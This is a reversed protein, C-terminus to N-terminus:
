DVLACSCALHKCLDSIPHAQRLIRRLRQYERHLKNDMQLLLAQLLHKKASCEIDQVMCTVEAPEGPETVKFWRTKGGVNDRKFYIAGDIEIKEQKLIDEISKIDCIDIGSNLVKFQHPPMENFKSKLTCVDRNVQFEITRGLIEVVDEAVFRVPMTKINEQKSVPFKIDPGEDPDDVDADAALKYGGSPM